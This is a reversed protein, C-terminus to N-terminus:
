SKGQTAKLFSDRLFGMSPREVLWYSMTSFLLITFVTAIARYFDSTWIFELKGWQLLSVISQNHYSMVNLLLYHWIYVSYSVVGVLSIPMLFLSISQKISEAKFTTFAILTLFFATAYLSIQHEISLNFQLVILVSATASVILAISSLQNSKEAVVIGVVFLYFTQFFPNFPGTMQYLSPIMFLAGLIILWEATRKGHFCAFLIPVLIYFIVEYTLSWLVPNIDRSVSPLLAQTFTIHRLLGEDTVLPTFDSGIIPILLVAVFMNVYYLPM